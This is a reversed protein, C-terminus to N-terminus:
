VLGVGIAAAVFAGATALVLGPVEPEEEIRDWDLDYVRYTLRLRSPVAVLLLLYRPPVSGFAVPAAILFVQLVTLALFVHGTGRVGLVVPITRVGARRDGEVDRLDSIVSGLFAFVGFYGAVVVDLFAIADTLSGVMVFLMPAMMATIAVNKVLFREKLRIPPTSYAFGLLLYYVAIALPITGLYAFSVALAAVVAAPIYASLVRRYTDDLVPNYKDNIRDEEVDTFYNYLYVSSYLLAMVSGALVATTWEFAEPHLFVGVLAICALTLAAPYRLVHLFASVKRRSRRALTTTEM